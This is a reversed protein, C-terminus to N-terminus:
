LERQASANTVSLVYSVLFNLRTQEDDDGDIKQSQPACDNYLFVEVEAYVWVYFGRM